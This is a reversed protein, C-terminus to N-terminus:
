VKDQRDNVKRCLLKKVREWISQKQQYWPCDNHRNKYECLWYRTEQELATDKIAMSTPHKCATGSYAISDRYECDKCYVKASTKPWDKTPEVM